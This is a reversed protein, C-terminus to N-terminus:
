PGGPPPHPHRRPLHGLFDAQGHDDLGLVAVLAFPTVTFMVVGRLVSAAKAVACGAERRLGPRASKGPWSKRQQHHAALQHGGGPAVRWTSPSPWCLTRSSTSMTLWSGRRPEAVARRQGFGGSSMAMARMALSPRVGWVATGGLALAHHQAVVGVQGGAAAGGIHGVVHVRSRRGRWRPRRLGDAQVDAAHVHDAFGHELRQLFPPPM